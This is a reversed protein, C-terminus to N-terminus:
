TPQSPSGSDISDSPPSPETEVRHRRDSIRTRPRKASVPAEHLVATPHQEPTHLESPYQAPVLTKRPDRSTQSVEVSQQVSCQRPPVCTAARGPPRAPTNPHPVNSNRFRHPCPLVRHRGSWHRYRRSRPSAHVASPSQQARCVTLPPTQTRHTGHWRITIHKKRVSISHSSSNLRHCLLGPRHGPRRPRPPASAHLHCDTSRHRSKSSERRCQSPCQRM